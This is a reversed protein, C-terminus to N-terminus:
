GSIVAAFEIGRIAGAGIMTSADPMPSVEFITVNQITTTTRTNKLELARMRRERNENEDIGANALTRVPGGSSM